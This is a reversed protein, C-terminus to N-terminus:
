GNLSEGFRIAPTGPGIGKWLPSVMNKTPPELQPLLLQQLGVPLKPILEQHKGLFPLAARQEAQGEPTTPYFDHGPTIVM